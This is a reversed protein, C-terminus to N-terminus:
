RYDENIIAEQVQMFDDEKILKSYTAKVNFPYCNNAREYMGDIKQLSTMM